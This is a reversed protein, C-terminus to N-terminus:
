GKLIYIKTKENVMQDSIPGDDDTPGSFEYFTRTTIRNDFLLMTIYGDNNLLRNKSKSGFFPKIKLLNSNIM